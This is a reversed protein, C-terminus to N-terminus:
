PHSPPNGVYLNCTKPCHSEIDMIALAWNTDNGYLARAANFRAQAAQGNYFATIKQNYATIVGPDTPYVYKVQVLPPDCRTTTSGPGCFYPEGTPSNDLKQWEPLMQKSIYTALKPWDAHNTWLDPGFHSVGFQTSNDIATPWLEDIMKLWGPDSVRLSQSIQNSNQATHSACGYKLCFPLFDKAFKQNAQGNPLRAGIAPNIEFGVYTYVHVPMGPENAKGPGTIVTQPDTRDPVINKDKSAPATVYNRFQAPLYWVTVGNLKVHGGPQVVDSVQQNSFTGHSTTIAWQGVSPTASSCAALLFGLVSLAGLAGAIRRTRNM